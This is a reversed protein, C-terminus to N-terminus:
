FKSVQTITFMPLATNSGKGTGDTHPRIVDGASLQMTVSSTSGQNAGAPSSRAIRNAATISVISTTLQNSNLSIGMDAAGSFEDTYHIAYVGAENITFSAGLTASDAYTIGTGVSNLTNTFRTIKNNTSGYGNGQQVRVMSYPLKVLGATQLTASALGFGVATGAKAKVVRWRRDTIGSWASGVGGFTAGQQRYEGFFVDVDTANVGATTWMGYNIGNQTNRGLILISGGDQKWTGTGSTDENIEIWITDTPQIPTSFRVRKSIGGSGSFLAGQPGYGFATTNSSGSTDTNYVYEVDNQALNVTGNGAWEAIPIRFRFIMNANSGVANGLAKNWNNTNSTQAIFLRTNDSTDWLVHFRYGNGAINVPAGGTEAVDFQGVIISPGSTGLRTSDVTLGSPLNISATSAAVTGTLFKGDVVLYSGERVGFVTSLTTTGFGSYTIGSVDVPSLAAGQPQIGPGVIVNTIDLNTTGTGGTRTLRVTYSTSSDADFTTTFIGTLGAPITTAGSSDTSLAMRTSGSYVSLRWTDASPSIVSFQVKNKRNRLVTPFTSITYAGGSTSSETANATAQVRIATTIVPALPSGSTLTSVTHSTGAAWGANADNPNLVANIEGSGSGALLNLTTGDDVKVQNTDTDYVLTAQKRTLGSLTSSSAKPLTIRSTNSATAGDIDKNTLAQTADTTVIASSNPLTNGSQIVGSADRRIVKNADALATKIATLPLDQVTNEDGDITKNQLLQTGDTTVLQGTANSGATGLKQFETNDVSGDAIKTAAIAAAADVNANVILASTPVGSADRVLAKNADGLVTKIATVPLDQITNDDGDLTKGTLTQTETRGVLEGSGSTRPPASFSTTGVYTNSNPTFKVDQGDKKMWLEVLQKIYGYIRM